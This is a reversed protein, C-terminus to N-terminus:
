YTIKDSLNKSTTMRLADQANKRLILSSPDKYFEYMWFLNLQENEFRGDPNSLAGRNKITM